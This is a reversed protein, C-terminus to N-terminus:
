RGWVQQLNENSNKRRSDVNKILKIGCECDAIVETQKSTYNANKLRGCKCRLFTEFIKM